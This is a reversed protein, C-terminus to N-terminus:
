GGYVLEFWAAMAEPGLGVAWEVLEDISAFGMQEALEAPAPPGGGGEEGCGAAMMPQGCSGWASLLASLDSGDVDNDTCWREEDEDGATFTSNLVHVGSENGIRLGGGDGHSGNEWFVCNVIDADSNKQVAVAGGVHGSVNRAFACDHIKADCCGVAWLAGGNGSEAMALLSAGNTPDADINALSTASNDEFRCHLVTPNGCRLRVAGGLTARNFRFICDRVLFEETCDVAILGAGGPEVIELGACPGETCEFPVPVQPEGFTYGGQIILGDLGSVEARGIARVVHYSNDDLM